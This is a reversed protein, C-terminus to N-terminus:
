VSDTKPQISRTGCVFNYVLFQSTGFYHTAFLKGDPTPDSFAIEDKSLYSGYIFNNRLCEILRTAVARRRMMGVVWIRSIGCIAPEPTTSCCWARQREFMVKEGESGEPPAEEIVRYGEQIHEAILCGTVKKDISIFLFTKTQSPCKTEVQQFGLDNDVMERIEEVKKLAYKPDDPLVLIIKGDPYEAMIREKKWGVYKVASIFQNHFLLHQSEDEANAASYLMGCVSCAEPGFHKQGADTQTGDKDVEQHTAGDQPKAEGQQCPEESTKEEMKPLETSSEPSLNTTAVNPIEECKTTDPDKASGEPTLSSASGPSSSDATGKPKKNEQIPPNPPKQHMSAFNAKSVSPKPESTQNETAAPQKSQTVNAGATKPPPHPPATPKPQVAVSNAKPGTVTSTVPKSPAATTHKPQPATVTPKIQAPKTQPQAAATLKSQGSIQGPPAKQAKLEAQNPLQPATTPKLSPTPRLAPVGPRPLQRPQNPKKPAALLMDDDDLEFDDPSYKPRPKYPTYEVPKPKQAKLGNPMPPPVPPLTRKAASRTVKPAPGAVAAAAQVAQAKSQRTSRRTEVIPQEPKPIEAIPPPAKTSEKKSLETKATEPKSPQTQSNETKAPETEAPEAKPTEPKPPAPKSAPAPSAPSTTSPSTAPPPPTIPSMLFGGSFPAQWDLDSFMQNAQDSKLKKVRAWSMKERQLEVQRLRQYRTLKKKEHAKLPVSIQSIFFRRKQPEAAPKTEVSETTSPHVTSSEPSPTVLASSGVPRAPTAVNGPEVDPSNVGPQERKSAEAKAAAAVAAQKEEEIRKLLMSDTAIDEAIEQCLALLNLQQRQAARKSEAAKQEALAALRAKTRAQTNMEQKKPKEEEPGKKDDETKAKEKLTSRIEDKNKNVVMEESKTPPDETAQESPKIIKVDDDEENDEAVVIERGIEIDQLIQVEQLDLNFGANEVVVANGDETFHQADSNSVEADVSGSTTQHKSNQANHLLDQSLVEGSSTLTADKIGDNAEELGTKQSSNLIGQKPDKDALGGDSLSTSLGSEAAARTLIDLHIESEPVPELVVYEESPGDTIEIESTHTPPDQLGAEDQVLETAGISQSNASREGKEAADESQGDTASIDVTSINATANIQQLQAHTPGQAESTTQVEMEVLVQCDAATIEMKDEEQPHGTGLKVENTSLNAEAGVTLPTETNQIDLVSISEGVEIKTYIEGGSNSEPSSIPEYVVQNENFRVERENVTRSEDESAQIVGGYKDQQDCVFVVVKSGDAGEQLNSVSRDVNAEDIQQRRLDEELLSNTTKVDEAVPETKNIYEKNEFNLVPLPELDSLGTAHERIEEALHNHHEALAAPDSIEDTEVSMEMKTETELVNECLSTVENENKHEKDVEERRQQQLHVNSKQLIECLTKSANIDTETPGVFQANVSVINQKSEAPLSYKEAETDAPLESVEQDRQSQPEEIFSPHSIGQPLESKKLDGKELIQSISLSERQIQTEPPLLAVKTYATLKSVEHGRPSHKPETFTPQSIEPGVTTEMEIEEPVASSKLSDIVDKNYNEHRIEEITGTQIKIENPSKDISVCEESIQNENEDCENTPIRFSEPVNESVDTAPDTVDLSKPIETQVRSTQQSIEELPATQIEMPNEVNGSYEEDAKSEGDKAERPPETVELSKEGHTEPPAPSFSLEIDQQAKQSQTPLNAMPQSIELPEPTQMEIDIPNGAIDLLEQFTKSDNGMHSDGAHEIADLSKRTKTEARTIPQSFEELPQTTYMEMKVPCGLCEEVAKTEEKNGENTDRPDLIQHIQTEPASLPAFIKPASEPHTKMKNEALTIEVASYDANLIDTKNPSNERQIEMSPAAISDESALIFQMESKIPNDQVTVCEKSSIQEKKVNQDNEIMMDHAEVVIDGASQEGVNHNEHSHAKVVCGINSSNEPTEMDFETQSKNVDSSSPSVPSEKTVATDVETQRQTVTVIEVNVMDSKVLLEASIEPNPESVKQNQTEQIHAIDYVEEPSDAVEVLVEIESQAACSPQKQAESPIEPALENGTQTQIEEKPAFNSVEQSTVLVEDDEVQSEAATCADAVNLSSQHRSTTHSKHAEDPTSVNPENVLQTQMEELPECTSINESTAGVEVESHAACNANELDIQSEKPIDTTPESVLQTRTEAAEAVVELQTSTAPSEEEQSTQAKNPITAESGLQIQMEEVPPYNSVMESTAVIEGNAQLESQDAASVFIVDLSNRNSINGHYESAEDPIGTTSYNVLQTQMEEVPSTISFEVSTGVIEGDAQILSQGAASVCVVEMTASIANELNKHVEDQMSITCENVLQTQMERVPAINSVNGSMANVAIQIQAACSTDGQDEQVENSIDPIPESVLQIQMEEMPVSTSVDQSTAVIEGAAELQTQASACMVDQRRTSHANELHKLAEYSTDVTPKGVVQIQSNEVPAIYSIKESSVDVEITTQAACSANELDKQSKNPIDAPPENVMQTQMEQIPTVTPVAQCTALVETNDERQTEASAVNVSIRCNANEHSKDSITPESVLQTQMEEVPSTISFEVSTGVIEGDAQILSQGAASVCVVEMTASIANELNKHVEDQMSITCENVLQTQMERVPAINSVNGSMANVAIQIQAACSTDGQDEQVENSIDPIPESVLQIQMEEMPVSTSVDQSTAVIEGAAELQTQASACMVDQRWTSHANELHKLAEYSTDVTPKGVVQIQSNEVPAIYSIKESSVEVEITTQAACSANELDKQSKNPIDAPPENVEQTQMEEIPSVNSVEESPATSLDNVSIQTQAVCPGDQNRYAEEAIKTIPEIILQSQMGEVTAINCVEVKSDAVKVDEIQGQAAGNATELDEKAKNPGYNTLENSLQTKTEQIPAVNSVAESIADNEENVELYPEAASNANELDKPAEDSTGTTPESVLQKIKSHLEEILTMDFVQKSINSTQADVGTLSQDTTAFCEASKSDKESEDPVVTSCESAQNEQMQIESEEELLDSAAVPQTELGSLERFTEPCERTEMNECKDVTVHDHIQASVVTPFERVEQFEQKQMELLPGLNLIGSPIGIQIETKNEGNAESVTEKNAIMKVNEEKHFDTFMNATSERIQSDVVASPISAQLDEKGEIIPVAACHIVMLADKDVNLSDVKTVDDQLIHNEQSQIDDKSTIQVASVINESLNETQNKDSINRCDHHADDIVFSHNREEGASIEYGAGTHPSQFDISERSSEEPKEESNEHMKSLDECLGGDKAASVDHTEAANLEEKLAMQTKSVAFSEAKTAIGEAQAEPNCIELHIPPSNTEDSSVENVKGSSIGAGIARTEPEEQEDHETETTECKLNRENEEPSQPSPQIHGETRYALDTRRAVSIEVGRSSNVDGPVSCLTEESSSLTEIDLGKAVETSGVKDRKEEDESAICSVTERSSTENAHSEPSKLELLQIEEATSDFMETECVSTNTSANQPADVSTDKKGDSDALSQSSTSDSFRGYNHENQVSDLPASSFDHSTDPPDSTGEEAKRKAKVKNSYKRICRAKDDDDRERFFDVKSGDSSLEEDSGTSATRKLSGKSNARQSTAEGCSASTPKLLKAKKLPPDLSPKSSDSSPSSQKSSNNGDEASSSRKKKARPTGTKEGNKETKPSNTTPGTKSQLDEGGEEVKRMKSQSEPPSSERKSAPMRLFESQHKKKMELIGSGPGRRKASCINCFQMGPIAGSSPLCEKHFMHRCHFVVVSFPQAMDSPLIASHCSECINGEDVRVGRMQTRHM